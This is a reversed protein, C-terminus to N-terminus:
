IVKAENFILKFEKESAERMDTLVSIINEILDITKKLDIKEKQL